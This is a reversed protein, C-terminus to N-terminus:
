RACLRRPRVTAARLLCIVGATASQLSCPVASEGTLIVTNCVRPYKILIAYVGGSKLLSNEFYGDAKTIHAHGSHPPAAAPKIKRGAHRSPNKCEARGGNRWTADKNCHRIGRDNRGGTGGRGARYVQANRKQGDGKGRTERRSFINKRTEKVEQM